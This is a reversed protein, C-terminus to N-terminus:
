SLNPWNSKSLCLCGYGEIHNNGLYCLLYEFRAQHPQSMEGHRYILMCSQRTEYQIAITKKPKAM